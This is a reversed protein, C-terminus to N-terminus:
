CDPKTAAKKVNPELPLLAEPPVPFAIRKQVPWHPKSLQLSLIYHNNPVASTLKSYDRHSTKHCLSACRLLLFAFSIPPSISYRCHTRMLNRNCTEHLLMRLEIM